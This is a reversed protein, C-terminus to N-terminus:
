AKAAKAARTPAAPAKSKRTQAGALAFRGPAPRCFRAEKGKLTIERVMAAYLTASPTKGAASTWLGGAEMRTILDGASLGGAADKAPLTALVSAAADLASMRKSSEAPKRTPKTAPRSRDGVDVDKKETRAAARATAKAVPPANHTVVLRAKRRLRSAPKPSEPAPQAPQKFSGPKKATASASQSMPTRRAKPAAAAAV